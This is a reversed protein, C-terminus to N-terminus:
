RTAETPVWLDVHNDGLYVRIKSTAFGRDLISFARGKVVACVTGMLSDYLREDNRSLSRLVQDLDDKTLCGIYHDQVVGTQAFANTSLVCIVSIVVFSIKM